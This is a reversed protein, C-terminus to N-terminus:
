AYQGAKSKLNHGFDLSVCSYIFLVWHLFVPFPVLGYGHEQTTGFSPCFALWSTRYFCQVHSDAHLDRLVVVSLWFPIQIFACIYAVSNVVVNLLWRRLRYLAASVMLSVSMGGMMMMMMMLIIVEFLILHNHKRLWPLVFLVFVFSTCWKYFM